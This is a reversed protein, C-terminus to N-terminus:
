LQALVGPLDEFRSIVADAGLEEAPSKAYGYAVLVVPLGASRATELDIQSDGVFVAHEAPCAMQVLAARPHSPDPKRRPFSDGGTVAAFHKALDLEDLVKRALAEPKNTCIGLHWGDALLALLTEPVGPYPRTKRTVRPGYLAMLRSTHRALDTEHPGDALGREVLKGVGEGVMTLVQELPLPDHGLEARLDNLSEALDAASDVLTGDLDLLLGRRM